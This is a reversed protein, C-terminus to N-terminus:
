PEAGLLRYLAPHTYDSVVYHTGIQEHLERLRKWEPELRSLAVSGGDVAAQIESRGDGVVLVNAPDIDIAALLERMVQNKPMKRDWSSGHVAEVMQGPGIEYGLTTVEEYMGGGTPDVVSGTVFHNVVGRDHLFRLLRMSGPVRWAQPDISAAALNRDRSAGYLVREYLRFLRPTHEAVYARLASPEDIDDFVEEGAWIRRAIEANTRRHADTLQLGPVRVTGLEIGRRIAWEMQTLASLGASEICFRDTEALPEAGSLAVLRRLNGPGDFGDPLGGTMADYLVRSMVPQWHRILSHTGDIDHVAVDIRRRGVPRIVEVNGRDEPLNRDDITIPM